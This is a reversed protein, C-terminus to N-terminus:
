HPFARRMEEEEQQQIQVINQRLMQRGRHLRSRVTGISCQHHQAIEEYSYGCVDALVVIKRYGEPLSALVRRVRRNKESLLLSQEPMARPNDDALTDAFAANGSIEGERGSGNASLTSDLSCIQTRSASRWRDIVLNSLIRFLWGEFAHARNYSDFSKWARIFTEQTVDEADTTNGMMRFAARYAFQYARRRLADFEAAQADSSTGRLRNSLTTSNLNNGGPITMDM